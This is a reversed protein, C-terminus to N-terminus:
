WTVTPASCALLATNGTSTVAPVGGGDGAAVGGVTALMGSGGSCSSNAREGSVSLPPPLEAERELRTALGVRSAPSAWAPSAGPPPPAGTVPGVLLPECTPVLWATAMM